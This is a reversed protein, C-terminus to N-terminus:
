SCRSMQSSMFHPGLELEKEAVEEEHDRSTQMYLVIGVLSEHFERYSSILCDLLSMSLSGM